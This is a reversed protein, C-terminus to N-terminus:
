HLEPRYMRQVSKSWVDLYSAFLRTQAELARSPVKLWYETLRSFTKVMDAVLEAAADRVEGAERAAACAAAAKGAQEIARAINLAFREPDKVLYQEVNPPLPHAGRDERITM